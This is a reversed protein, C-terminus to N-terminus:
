PALAAAKSNPMCAPAGPQAPRVCASSSTGGHLPASGGAQQRAARVFCSAHAERTHPGRPTARESAGLIGAARAGCRCPHAAVVGAHRASPEGCAACCREILRKPVTSSTVAAPAVCMRKGRSETAHAVREDGRRGPCDDRAAERCLGRRVGQAADRSGERRVVLRGWGGGQGAGSAMAASGACSRLLLAASAGRGRRLLRQAAWLRTRTRTSAADCRAAAPRAGARQAQPTAACRAHRAADSADRLGDAADPLPSLPPLAPVCRM